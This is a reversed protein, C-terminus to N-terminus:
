QSSEGDQVAGADKAAGSEAVLAPDVVFSALVCSVILASDVEPDADIEVGPGTPPNLKALGIPQGDEASVELFSGKGTTVPELSLVQGVRSCHTVAFGKGSRVFSGYEQRGPGIIKAPDSSTKVNLPGISAEPEEWSPTRALELFL